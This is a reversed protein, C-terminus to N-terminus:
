SNWYSWWIRQHIRSAKKCVYENAFAANSSKIVYLKDKYEEELMKIQNYQSSLGYSIPIFFVLDNEELADEITLMVQGPSSCSTKFTNGNNIENFLIQPNMQIGDDAYVKNNKDSLSLPVVAINNEKIFDKDITSSSDIIIKVKKNM